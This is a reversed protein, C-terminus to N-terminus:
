EAYRNGLYSLNVAVRILPFTDFQQQGLLLLALARFYDTVKDKENIRHGDLTRDCASRIEHVCTVMATLTKQASTSNARGALTLASACSWDVNLAEDIPGLLAPHIHRPFMMFRFSSEM